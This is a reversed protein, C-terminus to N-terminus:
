IEVILSFVIVQEYLFRDLRFALQELDGLFLLAIRWFLWLGFLMVFNETAPWGPWNLHFQHFFRIWFLHHLAHFLEEKCLGFRNRFTLFLRRLLVRKQWVLVEVLLRLRHLKPLILRCSLVQEVKGNALRLFLRHRPANELVIQVLLDLVVLVHVPMLRVLAAQVLLNLLLLLPSGFFRQELLLLLVLNGDGLVVKMRFGRHALHLVAHVLRVSLTHLDVAQLSHDM